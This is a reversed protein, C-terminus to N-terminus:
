PPASVRGQVPGLTCGGAAPEVCLRLAQLRASVEGARGPGGRMRMPDDAQGPWAEAGVQEEVLPRTLLSLWADSNGCM